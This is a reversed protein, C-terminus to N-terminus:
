EIEKIRSLIVLILGSFGFREDKMFPEIVVADSLKLDKSDRRSEITRATIAEHKSRTRVIPWGGTAMLASVESSM